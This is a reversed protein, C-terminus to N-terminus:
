TAAVEHGRERSLARDNEGTCTSRPSRRASVFASRSQCLTSFRERCFTMQMQCLFSRNCARPFIVAGERSFAAMLQGSSLPSPPRVLNNLQTARVCRETLPLAVCGNPLIMGGGALRQDRRMKYWHREKANRVLIAGNLHVKRM